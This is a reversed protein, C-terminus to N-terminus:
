SKKSYINDFREGLEAYLIYEKRSFGKKEFEKFYDFKEKTKTHVGYVKIIDFISLLNAIILFFDVEEHNKFEDGLIKYFNNRIISTKKDRNLKKLLNGNVSSLYKLSNIYEMLKVKSFSVNKMKDGSIFENLELEFIEKSVYLDNSKHTLYGDMINLGNDYLNSVNIVKEFLTKEGFISYGMVVSTFGLVISDEIIKKLMEFRIPMEISFSSKREKLYHDVLFLGDYDFEPEGVDLRCPLIFMVLDGKDCSYMGLMEQELKELDVKSSLKFDKLMELM